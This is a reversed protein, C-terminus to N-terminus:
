RGWISRSMAVSLRNSDHQCIKLAFSPLSNGHHLFRKNKARGSKFANRVNIRSLNTAAGTSRASANAAQLLFCFAWVIPSPDVGAPAEEAAGPAEGRRVTAGIVAGVEGAFTATSWVACTM